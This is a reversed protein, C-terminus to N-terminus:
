SCLSTQCATASPSSPAFVVEEPRDVAVIRTLRRVIIELADDWSAGGRGPDVGGKPRIRKMARIAWDPGVAMETAARGKFCLAAETPHAEEFLDVSVL